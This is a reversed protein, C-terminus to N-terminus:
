CPFKCVPMCKKLENLGEEHEPTRVLPNGLWMSSQEEGGTRGGCLLIAADGVSCAAAECLNLPEQVNSQVACTQIQPEGKSVAEHLCVVGFCAAQWEGGDIGGICVAVECGVAQVPLMLHGCRAPLSSDVTIADVTFLNEFMHSPTGECLRHTLIEQLEM